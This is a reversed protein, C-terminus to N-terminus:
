EGQAAVIVAWQDHLTQFRAKAATYQQTTLGFATRVQADTWTGDAIREILWAALRAAETGTSSRFRERVAAALQASTARKLVIAM